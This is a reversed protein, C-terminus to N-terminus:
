CNTYGAGDKPWSCTDISTGRGNRLYATDGTNNWIHWGSGWYLNAGSDRGKGSYLWLSHGAPLSYSGFTYVHGAKDRVTWGKLNETYSKSNTIKVYEGNVNASTDKGPADYQIRSFHVTPTAATSPAAACIVAAAGVAAISSMRRVRM